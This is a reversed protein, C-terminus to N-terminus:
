FTYIRGGGGGAGWSAEMTTRAAQAPAMAVALLSAVDSLCDKCVSMGPKAAEDGEGWGGVTSRRGGDVFRVSTSSRRGSAAAAFSVTSRRGGFTGVSSKRLGGGGGGGGGGFRDLAPGDLFKKVIVSVGKAGSMECGGGGGSGGGGVSGSSGWFAGGETGKGEEVVVAEESCFVDALTSAAHAGSAEWGGGVAGAVSRRSSQRSARARGRSSTALGGEGEVARGGGGGGDSGVGRLGSAAADAVAFAALAADPPQPTSRPPLPPAAPPPRPRPSHPRQSLTQRRFVFSRMAGQLLRVASDVQHCPRAPPPPTHHITNYQITTGLTTNRQTTNLYQTTASTWSVKKQVCVCM